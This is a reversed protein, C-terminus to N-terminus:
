KTEILVKCFDDHFQQLNRTNESFKVLKRFINLVNNKSIHITM